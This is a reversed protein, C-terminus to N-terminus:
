FGKQYGPIIFSETVEMEIAETSEFGLTTKFHGQLNVIIPCLQAREPHHSGDLMVKPM